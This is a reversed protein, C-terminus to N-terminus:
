RNLPVVAMGIPALAILALRLHQWAFPLGIV